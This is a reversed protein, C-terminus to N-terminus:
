AESSFSADADSEADLLAQKFPLASSHGECERVSFQYGTSTDRWSRDTISRDSQKQALPAIFLGALWLPQEWFSGSKFAGSPRNLAEAWSITPVSFKAIEAKPGGSRREEGQTIDRQFQPSHRFNCGCLRSGCDQANSTISCEGHFHDPAETRGRTDGPGLGPPNSDEERGLFAGGTGATISGECAKGGLNASIAPSRSRVRVSDKGVGVM